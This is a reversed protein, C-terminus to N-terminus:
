ESRVEPSTITITAPPAGRVPQFSPVPAGPLRRVHPEFETFWEEPESCVQEMGQIHQLANQLAKKAQAATSKAHLSRAAIVYETATVPIAEEEDQLVAGTRGGLQADDGDEAGVCASVGKSEGPGKQDDTQNETHGDNIHMREEDAVAPATAAAAGSGTSMTYDLIM